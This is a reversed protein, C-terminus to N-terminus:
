PIIIANVPTEKVLFQQMVPKALQMKPICGHVSEAIITYLEFGPYKERGDEFELINSGDDARLWSWLLNFVPHDTENISWDEDNTLM